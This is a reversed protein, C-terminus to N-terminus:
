AQLKEQLESLSLVPIGLSEAKTLKSGANDGALLFATKKSVSSTVKGGHSQILQTAEEPIQSRDAVTYKLPTREAEEIKIMRCGGLMMFLILLSLFAATKKM